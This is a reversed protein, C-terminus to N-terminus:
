IRDKLEEALYKFRKEPLDGAITVQIIPMMEGTGISIVNPDEADEPLDPTENVASRLDQLIIKFDNDSMDEFRVFITSQGEVSRSNICDIKDVDQIEDEIPKTILKEIEEPSTGPYVTLIIAMNFSLDPMFERPLSSLSFIGLFAVMVMLINATVPNNVSLKALNM